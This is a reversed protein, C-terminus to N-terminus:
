DLRRSARRLLPWAWLGCVLVGIATLGLPQGTFPAVFWFTPLVGLVWVWAGDVFPVALPLLFALGGLKALALGEVQNDAIALLVLAFLPACLALGLVSPLARAFSPMGTSGLLVVAMGTVAALGAPALLRWRTFGRRTLPTVAIADLTGEAREELLLFGVIWGPLLATLSVALGAATPLLPAIDIAQSSALEQLPPVGWRLLSALVLPAVLALGLMPDRLLRRVDVRLLVMSNNMLGGGFLSAGLGSGLAM